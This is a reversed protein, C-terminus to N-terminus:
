SYLMITLSKVSVMPVLNNLIECFGQIKGKLRTQVTLTPIYWRLSYLKYIPRISRMSPVVAPLSRSQILYIKLGIFYVYAQLVNLPSKLRNANIITYVVM